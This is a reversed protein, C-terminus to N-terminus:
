LQRVWAPSQQLKEPYYYYLMVRQMWPSWRVRLKNLAPKTRRLVRALRRAYGLRMEVQEVAWSDMLIGAM